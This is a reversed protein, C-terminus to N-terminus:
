NNLSQPPEHVGAAGSPVAPQGPLMLVRTAANVERRYDSPSRGTAKRFAASFSSTEAFGVAIGVSTVSKGPVALLEKAREIRRNVHYRHPPLGFSRKFARAFHFPSYDVIAALEALPVSDALHAEIYDAVRKQQWGALGGRAPAPAASGNNIRVLEHALLVALAEGYHQLAGEGKLTEDKLKMAIRWLEPDSFFLQPKFEIESFRLAEDLLPSQPDIYFSVVRAPVVPQQWGNLEYGAPVFTLKGSLRRLKSPPLGEIGTEGDEREVHEAAILLHHESRFRYTFPLRQTATMVDVKLGTWKARQHQITESPTFRLCRDGGSLIDSM